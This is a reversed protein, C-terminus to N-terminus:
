RVGGAALRMYTAHRVKSAQGGDRRSLGKAALIQQVRAKTLHFKDAIAQMTQGSLYLKVMATARAGPALKKPM